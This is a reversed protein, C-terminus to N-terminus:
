MIRANVAGLSPPITGRIDNNQFSITELRALNEYGESPLTGNLLNFQFARIFVATNTCYNASFIFVYLSVALPFKTFDFLSGSILNFAVNFDRMM